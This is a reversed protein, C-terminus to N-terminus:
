INVKEYILVINCSVTWITMLGDWKIWLFYM